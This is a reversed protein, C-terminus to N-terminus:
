QVKETMNISEHFGFVNYNSIYESISLDYVLDGFLQNVIKVKLLKVLPNFVKTMLVRKGHSEAILKVMESINVYEANQPFFLGGRGENILIKVFESLNDVYIMSRKNDVRPFVPTISAFSALKPYNGKCGKGYVMPPRLCAVIFNEEHLLSILKEAELKSRGYATKPVVSTNKDIVGNDIGYVSMSSLLIFQNVGDFKAKKAVEFALDRNIQFYLNQNNRTEKIHAIGAVHFVVDYQSFDKEKWSEDKMDLTEVEYKDPEKMLWNEFSIGIYSNKGTILIKKM